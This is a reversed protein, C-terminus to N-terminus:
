MGYGSRGRPKDKEDNDGWPDRRSKIKKMSIGMRGRSAHACAYGMTDHWHDPGGDAPTEPDNASVGIAPLTKITERCSSFIVLGPTTKKNEHDMLRTSIREANRKRSRKDAKTWTIGVRQMEEAKSRGVDGRQEWLQTDAPGTVASGCETWLGMKREIDRLDRAVVAADKGQFNYEHFCYLNDDEDIAFYLVTGPKKFGWDMARFKPWHKPIRFPKCIHLGPDWIESYFGNPVHYWNGFLLAQQIHPPKTRLTTEYDKVFEKDPNDYLTAPLYIRSRVQKTGDHLIVTKNISKRGEQAPDVFYRRVWNPDKITFDKAGSDDMRSYPNSMSRVKLMPRLVPDSTRCRGEIQTYQEEEFQILEDFGIWTQANVGATSSTIYQNAGEVTLDFTRRRGVYHFTGKGICVDETRSRSEGSYFHPYFSTGSLSHVPIRDACDRQLGIPSHIAADILQRSTEPYADVLSPPQVGHPRSDLCYRDRSDTTIEQCSSEYWTGCASSGLSIDHLRSRLTQRHLVVPFSLKPLQGLELLSDDFLLSDTGPVVQSVRREKSELDGRLLSEYDQWVFGHPQARSSTCRTDLSRSLLWGDTPACLVPHTTPHVQKGVIEGQYETTMEVCPKVGTDYTHTVKRPGELTMVEDGAQIKEIAKETGDGMVIGTGEACCYENSFYQDWDDSKQCHGFQYTYGSSFVFCNLKENWKGKPDIRQFIGKAIRISQTLMPFTRRLFLAWGVSQGWQLPYLHKPDACRQHESLVQFLPDMRLVTSKGPGAAGAGMAERHPLAHFEAGWASPKYLPDM